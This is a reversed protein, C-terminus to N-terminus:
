SNTITITASALPRAGDMAEVEVTTRGTWGVPEDAPDTRTELDTM